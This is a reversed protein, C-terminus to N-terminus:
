QSISRSGIRQLAFSAREKVAEDEQNAQVIAALDHAANRDRAAALADIAAVKVLPSQESRLAELFAKRIAPNPPTKRLADCAALRVNVNEDYRFVSVLARIVEDSETELQNAFRIGRLRENASGQSLLTVAVMSRLERVEDRLRPIEATTQEPRQRANYSGALWGCAILLTAAIPGAIWRWNPLPHTPQVERRLAEHFRRPLAPSPMAEPLCGLKEWTDHLSACDACSALHTQFAANEAPTLTGDLYATLKRQGEICTM